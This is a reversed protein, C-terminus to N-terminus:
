GEVQQRFEHPPMATLVVDTAAIATASRPFGLMAGLEGFYQGPGLSALPERNGDALERVIDIQGSTITYVYEPPDEQRFIETGATFTVEHAGRDPEIGEPTMRVVRDAVPILRADHTSVVIVRGASRLERLLGIVAEAQIHDLNATPEDAILLDPDTVLGRAVAVRQQQGGSLQSPKHKTRDGLGVRELLEDARRLADARSCAKSVILPVAVNERANLSPILNFGQFVFGVHKKRYTDLHKKYSGTVDIENLKISGSTPSLMGGLCSLLTSKGSGSPGLLVVLEGPAATFSLHDLPRVVYGDGEYEKVLDTVVLGIDSRNDTM